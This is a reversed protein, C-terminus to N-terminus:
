TAGLAETAIELAAELHCEQSHKAQSERRGGCEPCRDDPCRDSDGTDDYGSWQIRRLTEVCFELADRLEGIREQENM